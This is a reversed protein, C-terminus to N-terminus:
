MVDSVSLSRFVCFAGHSFVLSLSISPLTNGHIIERGSCIEDLYSFFILEIEFFLGTNGKKRYWM